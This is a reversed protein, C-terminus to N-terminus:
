EPNLRLRGGFKHIKRIKEAKSGGGKSNTNPMKDLKANLQKVSYGAYKKELERDGLYGKKDQNKKRNFGKSGECVVAGSKTTFCDGKQKDRWSGKVRPRDRTFKPPM